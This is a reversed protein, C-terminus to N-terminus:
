DSFTKSRFLYKQELRTLGEGILYPTLYKTDFRAMFPLFTVSSACDLLALGFTAVFLLISRESGFIFFTKSWSTILLISSIMAIALLTHSQKAEDALRFKRIFYCVVPGVNAMQIVLNMDSALSWREPLHNILVPIELWLGTIAIWSGIGFLLSLVHVILKTM